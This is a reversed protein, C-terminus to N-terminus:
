GTAVDDIVILIMTSFQKLCRLGSIGMDTGFRNISPIVQTLFFM